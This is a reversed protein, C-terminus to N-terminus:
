FNPKSGNSGGGSYAARISSAVSQYGSMISRLSHMNAKVADLKMKAIMRQIFETECTVAARAARIDAAGGHNAAELLARAHAAEYKLVKDAYDEACFREYHAGREIRAMADLLHEEVMKSDYPLTPDIVDVSALIPDAPHVASALGTVSTVNRLEDQVVVPQAREADATTQSLPMVLDMSISNPPFGLVTGCYCVVGMEPDFEARGPCDAHQPDKRKMSRAREFNAAAIDAATLAENHEERADDWESGTPEQARRDAEAIWQDESRMEAEDAM